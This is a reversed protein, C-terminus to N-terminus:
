RILKATTRQTALLAETCSFFFTICREGDRSHYPDWFDFGWKDYFSLMDLLIGDIELIPIGM